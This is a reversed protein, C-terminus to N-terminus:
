EGLSLNMATLLAEIEEVGKPGIGDLAILSRFRRRLEASQFGYLAINDDTVHTHIFLSVRPGVLPEQSTAVEYGVDNVMILAIGREDVSFCQGILAGIM